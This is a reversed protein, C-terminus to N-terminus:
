EITFYLLNNFVSAAKEASHILVDIFVICVCAAVCSLVVLLEPACCSTVVPNLWALLQWVGRYAAAILRVLSIVGYANLLHRWWACTRYVPRSSM